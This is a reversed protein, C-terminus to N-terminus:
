DNGLAGFGVDPYGHMGVEHIDLGELEFQPSVRIGMLKDQIKFFLYSVGFAWVAVTVVGVLQALLQSPDGYFLGKVTGAVGNLGDGYSGDAFLGTAIVGWLGNVGHVAVAGVPDDVKLKTDIYVVAWSVLVGAIAGILFADRANVFGSPATIAVLGALMGNIAMSPDPKGNRAWTYITATVAGAASALMTVVAVIVFRMNGGGSVGLTSGPNFGFWGFALIFCGIFAMPLHHGPIARVSGDSGYKGLRGGLVMAGALGCLGGVAHVVGSGAFDVYGHGLGLKVGLQSLWGGGWAWCGFIPYLFMSMFFAFICFASFKWREAMAGTPITCATDMFVMQFLFLAFVGVDYHSGGLFFGSTGLLNWGAISLAPSTTLPGTGGLNAIAGASGMHFAFGCIWYGTMGLAYVLFNMFMTHAANKARCFGTEVAAFGCQMFMVMFGAVMVWLLNVAIRNQGVSGALKVALPEKRAEAQYTQYEKLKDQYEALAKADAGAAPRAPEAPQFSKGAGDMADAATGTSAGTPDPQPAEALVPWAALLLLGLGGRLVGRLGRRTTARGPQCRHLM